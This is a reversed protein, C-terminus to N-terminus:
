NLEGHCYCYYYLLLDWKNRESVQSFDVPIAKSHALNPVANVHDLPGGVQGEVLAEIHARVNEEVEKLQAADAQTNPSEPETQTPPAPQSCVGCVYAKDAASWPACKRCVALDCGGCRVRRSPCRTTAALPVLEAKVRSDASGGHWRTSIVRLFYHGNTKDDM